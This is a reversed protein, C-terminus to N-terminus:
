KKLISKWGQSPYLTKNACFYGSIKQFIPVKGFISTKGFFTKVKQASSKHYLTEKPLPPLSPGHGGGGSNEWMMGSIYNEGLV